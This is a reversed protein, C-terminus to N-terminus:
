LLFHYVEKSNKSLKIKNAKKMYAKNDAKILTDHEAIQKDINNNKGKISFLNTKDIISQLVTLKRAIWDIEQKTDSSKSKKSSKNNSSSTSPKYQFKSLKSQQM